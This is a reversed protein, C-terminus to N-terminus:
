HAITPQPEEIHLVYHKILQYTVKFFKLTFLLLFMPIVIFIAVAMHLAFIILNSM